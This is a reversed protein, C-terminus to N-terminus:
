NIKGDKNAHTSFGEPMRPSEEGIPKNCIPCPMGAAGCCGKGDDWPKKSHFECVWNDDECNKCIFESM